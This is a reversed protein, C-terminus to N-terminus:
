SAGQLDRHLRRRVLHEDDEIFRRGAEGLALDDSTIGLVLSEVFHLVSLCFHSNTGFSDTIEPLQGALERIGTLADALPANAYALALARTLELRATLTMSTALTARAQELIPLARRTEGLYALGSALALRVRLADPGASPPAAEIHALLETMQERLGIRRLARLSRHLVRELDVARATPIAGALAALLTPVLENRGFHGAIVLAEAFLAARRKPLCQDVLRWATQFMPVSLAEPLELLEDFAGSLLRDREAADHRASAVIQAVARARENADALQRLAAFEPGRADQLRKSFAGIADPRAHPELIRSAERLRDVKYRSVRDLAALQRVLEEPLATEPAVGAVAQEIRATFVAV